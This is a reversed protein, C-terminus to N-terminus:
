NLDAEEAMVVTAVDIGRTQLEHLVAEGDKQREKLDILLVNPSFAQAEELVRNGAVAQVVFGWSNILDRLTERGHHEDAALLIRLDGNRNSTNCNTAPM